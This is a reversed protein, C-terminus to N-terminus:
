PVRQIRDLPGPSLPSMAQIYRALADVDVLGVRREQGETLVSFGDGGAALFANVTVRYQGRPDLPQGHLTLSQAPVRDGVPRSADWTYRFGQSVQLIHPKPQTSWQQELLKKIQEGSVTLTVLANRFPQCAFLDGYTVTGDGQLLLDTRIGGPNTFALVAGGLQSASTAALYADAIVNGLVTEGAPSADRTLSATLRGVVRNALPAARQAYAAILQTQAPDKAYTDTRAIVNTARAAIVDRTQPDLTLDIASVLTGYKDASTVLRGDIMCIYARHTHGSVVVDVAKDLKQVIDVIPGSLGPCENYDGTPIGGQHILVVIAEIGQQRLVPVLRNVTEAEDQFALGAVSTPMVIQSTGQLTLGLFAVPVGDFHRVAYPPFLPQGSTTDITNAALYQFTAGPFPHPGQCGETPHCGGYQMRRLEDLGHDFEHNGVASLALGMLSLAEITPEDHFLASLLPSAGILDGAAVFLTHPHQARLM